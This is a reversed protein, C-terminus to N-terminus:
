LTSNCSKSHAQMIITLLTESRALHVHLNVYIIHYPVCNHTHIHVLQVKNIPHYITTLRSPLPPIPDERARWGSYTSLVHMYMYMYIAKYIDKSWM